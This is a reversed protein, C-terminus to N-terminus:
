PSSSLPPCQDQFFCQYKVQSAVCLNNSVECRSLMGDAQASERSHSVYSSDCNSVDVDECADVISKTCFKECAHTLTSPHKEDCVQDESDWIGLLENCTEESTMEACQPKLPLVEEVFEWFRDIYNPVWDCLPHCNEPHHGCTSEVYYQKPTGRNQNSSVQGTTDKHTCKSYTDLQSSYFLTPAAGYAKSKAPPEGWDYVRDDNCGHLFVAGQIVDQGWRPLRWSYTAGKSFSFLMFRPIIKRGSVEGMRAYYDLADLMVNVFGNEWNTAPKDPNLIVSGQAALEYKFDGGSTQVWPWHREEANIRDDWCVKFYYTDPVAKNKQMLALIQDSMEWQQEQMCRYKSDPPQYNQDTEPPICDHTKKDVCSPNNTLRCSEDPDSHSGHAAVSIAHRKATVYMEGKSPSPERECQKQLQGPAEVFSAFIWAAVGVARAM